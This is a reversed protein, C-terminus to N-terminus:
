KVEKELWKLYDKNVRGLAIEFICPTKYSHLKKIEKEIKEFNNKLTKVILVEEKGSVIKKNWRCISEIPFINCCAALRKEVLYLGIKRAEKKDKCTIYILIMTINNKTVM